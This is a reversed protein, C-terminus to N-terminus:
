FGQGWGKMEQSRKLILEIEPIEMETRKDCLNYDLNNWVTALYRTNCFLQCVKAAYLQSMIHLKRLTKPSKQSDFIPSKESQYEKPM